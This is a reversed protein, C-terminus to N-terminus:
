SNTVHTIYTDATRFPIMTKLLNQAIENGSSREGQGATPFRSSGNEDGSGRDNQGAAPISLEPRVLVATLRGRM